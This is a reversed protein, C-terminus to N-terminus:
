RLLDLGNKIWTMQRNPVGDFGTLCSLALALTVPDIVCALEWRKSAVWKNTDYTDRTYLSNFDLWSEKSMQDQLTNLYYGPRPLDLHCAPDTTLGHPQSTLCATYLDSGDPGIALVAEFKAQAVGDKYYYQKNHWVQGLSYRISASM